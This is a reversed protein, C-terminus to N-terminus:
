TAAGANGTAGALRHWERYAFLLLLGAVSVLVLAALLGMVSGLRDIPGVLASAISRGLNGSAMYLCFQTAAVAPTCLRMALAALCISMLFSLTESPLIYLTVPWGQVWDSALAMVFLGHGAAIAFIAMAFRRAGFREVLLPLITVLLLGAVLGSTATMGSIRATDWGAIGAGMLPAIARYFGDYMGAFIFGAILLLSWPRVIAAFTNRLIPVIAGLNIALTEPSSQGATWPLLREGPRERCLLLLLIMGLVFLAALFAVAPLGVLGIGLGAGAGAGALGLSQGGFMLSNAREQEGDRLLDVAMGDIGVDQFTTAVNAAFSFGALLLVADAHPDVLGMAVLVLVILAQAGVIWARRRGMPLYPFREMVFGNLFKLTWPLSTASLYIGIDSASAGSAALWAPIATFFIGIPVGQAIYLLFILWLRVPRSEAIVPFRDRAVAPQM